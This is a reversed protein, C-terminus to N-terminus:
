DSHCYLWAMLRDNRAGRNWEPYVWDLFEKRRIDNRALALSDLFGKRKGCVLGSIELGLPNRWADRNVDPSLRFSLLFMGKWADWATMGLSRLRTSSDRPFWYGTIPWPRFLIRKKMKEVYGRTMGLSGSCASLRPIGKQRDAVPLQYNFTLM